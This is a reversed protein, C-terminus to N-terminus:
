NPWSTRDAFGANSVLVDLGGFIDRGGAAVLAAPVAPDALDGLM